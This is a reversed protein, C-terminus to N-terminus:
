MLPPAPKVELAAGAPDLLASLPSSLVPWQSKLINNPGRGEFALRGYKGYHPLKRALGPLAAADHAGLWAVPPVAPDTHHTTLVLSHTERNLRRGELEVGQEDMAVGQSKWTEILTPLFRNDWGLLWVPRDEPLHELADDLSVRWGPYGRTWQEALRRYAERMNKAAAAPLLILGRDAGFLAGLTPPSEEPYLGRFLDFRPDLDLRLPRGPLALDLEARTDTMSLAHEVLRGDALHIIFPLRLRFPQGAQTQRVRAKLRYGDEDRVAEAQDLALRPAGLRELWQEFFGSLDRGSVQEFAQRLEGYGAVRFRNDRYFRRLGEIFAADGLERRLMHFFMFGKGYGVSQSASSHRSRFERLPFDKGEHVFDAFRQLADRRYGAAQGRKEKLLHDALYTTLGESWNGSEYDVYVGNGWWNHLVEHPYSTYPIFPLRIVRPGLLTFSPMGYGTEWFNEVLAFKAYPYAGILEEYLALYDRTIALYKEALAQDPKRLFVQAEAEGAPQRYFQFPAAILYIDDQPHSERWRVQVRGDAESHEPGAGQSVALWGRPLDVRMDFSQLTDAVWPYWATSGSLFVGDEDITGPTRQHSRGLSEEVRSLGHRIEGGYSLTVSTEGPQPILVFREIGGRRGLSALRARGEKLQPSMGRHLSFVLREAPEFRLRDVVSLRGKDPDLRVSLEHHILPAASLSCASLSLLILIFRCLKPM